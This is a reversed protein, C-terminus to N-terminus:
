PEVCALAVTINDKGGNNNAAEILSLCRSEIDSSASAMACISEDDIMGSLGDSCLLYIDGDGYADALLDVGVQEKMGLARVIVNQHPFNEAEEPQIRNLQIYDNLLSHDRTLQTIAGDRIRYVRSDGVHAVLVRSPTFLVAVATTGMGGAHNEQLARQYISENALMLSSILRRDAGRDAPDLCFPWTPVHEERTNRFFNAVADVAMGSAVDGADHGGMGDAVLLLCEEECIYFADENHSRKRGTDTAGSARIKTSGLQHMVTM